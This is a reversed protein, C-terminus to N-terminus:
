EGAAPEVTINKTQMVGTTSRVRLPFEGHRLVRAKWLVLSRPAGDLPPPVPQIHKGEVREMGAPLELTLAQGPVPDHVTASITFLKGPEFNGGLQVDFRGESEPPVALGQGYAYAIERKGGPPIEKPEFFVGCASDGMSAMAAMEWTNFGVGHRTLVVRDARDFKSGLNLTLHSVFGPNDLNPQQLMQVYDPLTKGKLETGDLIKGPHTPAAFMAGDNSIVYVDMYIRVGFTHPRNGKNEVSYRILMADLRRKDASKAAKTPVAEASFTIRLDGHVFVTRFGHRDRGSPSKPLPQNQSEFRGGPVAGPQGVQGDISFMPFHSLHLTRNQEDRVQVGLASPTYKIRVVPDVPVAAETVVVSKQDRVTVKVPGADALWGALLLLVPAAIWRAVHISM